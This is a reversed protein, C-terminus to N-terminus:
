LNLLDPLQSMDSFPIAGVAELDEAKTDRTFGFCRMGAAQAGKAGNQSDEIVVCNQPDVGMERAAHLYLGANPKAMELGIVHPSYIRGAFRDWLGSPKLTIEMKDMPGNSGVCYPTRAQDLQDLFEPIGKIVEVGERLRAFMQTYMEDTWNQPLPYGMRRVEDAASAMTGGVFLSTCEDVSIDLGYRSLNAAMVENTARETDVLVGDCDFIVLQSKM